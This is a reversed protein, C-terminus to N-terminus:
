PLRTMPRSALAELRSVVAELRDVALVASRITENLAEQRTELVRVDSRITARESSASRSDTSLESVREGTSDITAAVSGWAVAGGLLLLAWTVVSAVNKRIWGGAEKVV